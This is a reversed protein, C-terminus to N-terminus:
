LATEAGRAILVTAAASLTAIDAGLAGLATMHAFRGDCDDPARSAALDVADEALGAILSKLLDYGQRAEDPHIM